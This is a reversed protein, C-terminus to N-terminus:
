PAAEQPDAGDLEAIEQWWWPEGDDPEDNSDLPRVVARARRNVRLGFIDPRSYHGGVDCAM